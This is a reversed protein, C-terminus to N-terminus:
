DAESDGGPEPARGKWRRRCRQLLRFLRTRWNDKQLRVWELPQADTAMPQKHRDGGVMFHCETLHPDALCHQVVCALVVFGPRVRKDDSYRFGSQYFYVKGAHVLAYRLGVPQAGASVRLMLIGGAPFARRILARHFAVFRPSAFAGPQGRKAWTAQHLEALQDLMQLATDATAAADVTTQGYYRFNQRLRKRTTPGLASEYATNTERLTKLNVFFDSRVTSYAVASGFAARLAELPPGQRFGDLRFEDWPRRDLYERLAAAVPAEWGELCLLNNFEMFPSDAPDEGSTNLFVCRLPFLKYRVSRRVLLAAAVPEGSARFMLIETTLLPAFTELWSEVWEHRLFFTAYPSARALESWLDRLGPWATAPYPTISLPGTCNPNTSPM